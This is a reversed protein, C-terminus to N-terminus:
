VKKTASEYYLMTAISYLLVHCADRERVDARASLLKEFVSRNV